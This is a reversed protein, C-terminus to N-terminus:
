CCTCPRRRGAQAPHQAKRVFVHAALDNAQRSQAAQGDSVFIRGFIYLSGSSFSGLALFSDFAPPWRICLSRLLSAHHLRLAHRRQSSTTASSRRSAGKLARPSTTAPRLSSIQRDHIQALERLLQVICLRPAQVNIEALLWVESCRQPFGSPLVVFRNHPQEDVSPSGHRCCIKLLACGEVLSSVIAMQLQNFEEYLPTVWDIAFVNETLCGQKASNLTAAVIHDLVENLM